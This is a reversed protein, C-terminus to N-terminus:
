AGVESERLPWLRTQVGLEECGFPDGSSVEMSQQEASEEWKCAAGDEAAKLEM